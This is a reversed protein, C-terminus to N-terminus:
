LLNQVTHQLLGFVCLEMKLPQLLLHFSQTFFSQAFTIPTVMLPIFSPSQRNTTKTFHSPILLSFTLYM